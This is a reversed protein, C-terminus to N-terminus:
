IKYNEHSNDSWLACVRDSEALSRAVFNECRVGVMARSLANPTKHGANADPRPLTGCRCENVHIARGSCSARTALGEGPRMLAKRVPDEGSETLLASHPERVM